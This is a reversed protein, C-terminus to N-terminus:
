DFTDVALLPAGCDGGMAGVCEDFTQDVLEVKEPRRRISRSELVPASTTNTLDMSKGLCTAVHWKDDM